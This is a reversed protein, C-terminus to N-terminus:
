RTLILGVAFGIGAAILASQTPNQRISSELGGLKQSAVAQVDEVAGGLKEGALRSVSNALSAIDTRLSDIDDKVDRSTGGNSGAKSAQYDQNMAAM